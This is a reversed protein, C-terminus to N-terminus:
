EKLRGVFIDQNLYNTQSNLVTAGFCMKGIFYGAVYINNNADCAISNSEEFSIGGNKQVWKFIGVNNNINNGYKMTFIDAMGESVLTTSGFTATNSFSGTVYVNGSADLALGNAVDNNTAGGGSQVWLNSPSGGAFAFKAVFVDINGSSTVTNYTIIPPSGSGVVTPFSAVNEFGGAIYYNSTGSEMAIANAVDRGTGGMRITNVWINAPPYFTTLFIDTSGASILSTSGFTATGSFSGTICITGSSNIGIATGIDTGTGGARNALQFVGTANDCKAVFIDSGGASTLTSSGFTITNNFYGTIYINGSVDLALSSAYDIGTGGARQVWQVLGANDYKVVFIDDSGASTVSTSGFTATNTFTGTVYVNGTADVKVSTGKDYTGSGQAKRVWQIIGSSNYKAIFVNSNGTATLSTTGFTTTGGFQGTIYFNGQSDTTVSNAVQSVGTGFAAWATSNPLIKCPDQNSCLWTTGTFHKLCKFTLDYALDGTQPSPLADIADSSLRPYSPAAVTVWNGNSFIYLQNLTTDFVILGPAPSAIATRQATTMRPPLFGKSTSSVDLMASNAPAAGTSNIGMQAFISLPIITLLMITTFIKNKM